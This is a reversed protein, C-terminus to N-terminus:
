NIKEGCHRCLKVRKKKPNEEMMLKYIYDSPHGENILDVWKKPNTSSAIRQKIIYYVDPPLNYRYTKKYVWAYNRLTSHSVKIGTTVKIEAAFEELAKGGAGPHDDMIAACIQGLKNHNQEKSEVISSVQQIYEDWSPM